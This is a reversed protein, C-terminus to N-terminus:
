EVKESDDELTTLTRDYNIPVGGQNQYLSVFNRIFTESKSLTELKIPNDVPVECVLSISDANFLVPGIGEVMTTECKLDVYLRIAKEAERIMKNLEQARWQMEFSLEKKKQNEFEIKESEQERQQYLLPHSPDTFDPM